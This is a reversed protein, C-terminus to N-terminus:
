AEVTVANGIGTQGASESDFNVYQKVPGADPAIFMARFGVGGKIERKRGEEEVEELM